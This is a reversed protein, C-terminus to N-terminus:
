KLRNMKSLQYRRSIIKFISLDSRRSISAQARAKRAYNIVKGNSGSGVGARNKKLMSNINFRSSKRSNTKVGGLNFNQANNFSQIRSKHKKNKDWNNRSIKFRERTSALIKPSPPPSSALAAALNKPLGLKTFFRAQKKQKASLSPLDKIESGGIKKLASKLKKIATNSLSGTGLQRSKGLTGRSIQSMNRANAEEASKSFSIGDINNMYTVDYCNNRAICDCDGDPRGYKDLCAVQTGYKRSARARMEPLCYKENNYNEPLNCFCATETIPNCDGNKPMKQIIVDLEDAMDRHNSSAMGNYVGLVSSAAIKVGTQLDMASGAAWRGVYCVATSSWGVSNLEQNKAKEQYQKKIKILSETQVNEAKSPLGALYKQYQHQQYGSIGETGAGILACYDFDKDNAKNKTKTANSNTTTAAGTSQNTVSGTTNSAGSSAGGMLSSGIAFQSYAKSVQSITEDDIGWTKINRGRCADTLSKIKENQSESDSEENNLGCLDELAQQNYSNSSYDNHLRRDEDSLDLNETNQAMVVYISNLTILILLFKKMM